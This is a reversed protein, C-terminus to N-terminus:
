KKLEAIIKDLKDKDDESRAIWYELRKQKEILEKEIKAIDKKYNECISLDTRYDNKTRKYKDIRTEPVNFNWWRNERRNTKILNEFDVKAIDNTRVRFATKFLYRKNDRGKSIVLVKNDEAMKIGWYDYSSWDHDKSLEYGLKELADKYKPEKTIKTTLTKYIMENVTM